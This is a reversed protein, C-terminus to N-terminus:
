PAAATPHLRPLPGASGRPQFLLQSDGRRWSRKAERSAKRTGSETDVSKVWQPNFANSVIAERSCLCKEQGEDMFLVTCCSNAQCKCQVLYLLGCFSVSHTPPTHPEPCSRRQTVCLSNCTNTGGLTQSCGEEASASPTQPGRRVGERWLAQAVAPAPCATSEGPRQADWM